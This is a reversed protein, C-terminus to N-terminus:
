DFVHSAIYWDDISVPLHSPYLKTQKSKINLGFGGNRNYSCIL